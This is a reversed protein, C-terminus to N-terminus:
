SASMRAGARAWTAVMEGLRERAHSLPLPASAIRRVDARLERCRRELRSVAALIDGGKLLTPPPGDYAVIASGHRRNRLTTDIAARTRVAPAIMRQAQTGRFRWFNRRRVPLPASCLTPSPRRCHHAPGLAEMRDRGRGRVGCPTARCLVDGAWCSGGTPAALARHLVRSPAPFVRGAIQLVPLTPPSVVTSSPTTQIAKPTDYGGQVGPNKQSPRSPL